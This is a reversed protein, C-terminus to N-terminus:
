LKRGKSKIFELDEESLELTDLIKKCKAKRILEQKKGIYDMNAQKIKSKREAKLQRLKEQDIETFFPLKLNRIEEYCDKGYIAIAIVLALINIIPIFVFVYFPVSDIAPKDYRNILFITLLCPLLYIFFEILFNM